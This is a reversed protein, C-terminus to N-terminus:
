QQNPQSDSETLRRFVKSPDKLKVYDGLKLDAVQLTQRPDDGVSNFSKVAKKRIYYDAFQKKRREQYAENKTYYERSQATLKDRNEAYYQRRKRNRKDRTMARRTASCTKCRKKYTKKSVDYYFESTPMERNCYKCIM